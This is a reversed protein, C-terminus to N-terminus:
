VEHDLELNAKRAALQHDIEGLQQKIAQATHQEQQLQDELLKLIRKNIQLSRAATEYSRIQIDIMQGLSFLFLSFLGGFILISLGDVWNYPEGAMLDPLAVAAIGAVLAISIVVSAALCITRALRLGNYQNM